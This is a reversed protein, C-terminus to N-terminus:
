LAELALEARRTSERAAVSGLARGARGVSISYAIESMEVTTADLDNM